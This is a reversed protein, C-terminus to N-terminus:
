HTNIMESYMGQDLIKMFGYVWVGVDLVVECVFMRGSEVVGVSMKGSASAM